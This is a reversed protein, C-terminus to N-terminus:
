TRVPIRACGRSRGTGATGAIVEYDHDPDGVIRRVVAPVKQGGEAIISDILERCSEKSLHAYSRANGPWIRVRAPDLLLQTVHRVDGSAVHAIAPQHGRPTPDRSRERQPEAATPAAPTPAAPAPAAPAAAALLDALHDSRELAM